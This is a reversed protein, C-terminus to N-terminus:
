TSWLIAQIYTLSILSKVYDSCVFFFENVFNWYLNEQVLVIDAIYKLNIKNKVNIVYPIRNTFQIKSVGQM